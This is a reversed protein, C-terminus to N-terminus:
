GQRSLLVFPSGNSWTKHLALAFCTSASPCSVQAV